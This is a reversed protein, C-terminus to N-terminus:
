SALNRYIETLRNAQYEVNFNKEIYKRGAVCMELWNEPHLLLWELHFALEDVNREEALLGTKGNMIVQPIDCHKTSIIPMGTAAMEIITVPAGGETDGDMATVSPSVFIHHKYAEKMLKNYSQYGLFRTIRELNHNKVVDLIVRKERNERHNGSSDGIVTVYLNPYHNKIQSVAMLAYPIGKKERFTGAILVKVPEDQVLRRPKFPLKNVEIGLRLVQVKEEPCGIKILNQAMYPGECLFIDTRDFLEQYRGLWIPNHSPLYSLDSGYFTVIQKLNNKKVLPLDYWGKNGFHSHLVDPRQNQIISNHAISYQRYSFGLKKLVRLISYEIKGAKYIRPWPFQDLNQTSNALVISSVNKGYKLQNYVWTM